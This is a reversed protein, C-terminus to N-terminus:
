GRFWSATKLKHSVPFPKFPFGSLVTVDLTRLLNPLEGRLLPNLPVVDYDKLVQGDHAFHRSIIAVKSGAPEFKLQQSRVHIFM